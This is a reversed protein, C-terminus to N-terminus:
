KHPVTFDTEYIYNAIHTLTDLDYGLEPMLEYKQISQHMLSTNHNPHIVWNAMYSVFDSKKIFANKYTKRIFSISPASINKTDHHCTVCNGNFLM